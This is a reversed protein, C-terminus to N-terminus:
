QRRTVQRQDLGVELLHLQRYAEDRFPRTMRDLPDIEGRRADHRDDGAFSSISTPM